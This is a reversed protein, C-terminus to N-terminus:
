KRAHLSLQNRHPSKSFPSHTAAEVVVVRVVEENTRCRTMAGAAAASAVEVEEGRCTIKPMVNGKRRTADAIGAIM